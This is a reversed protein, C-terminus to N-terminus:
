ASKKAAYHPQVERFASHLCTATSVRYPVLSQVSTPEGADAVATFEEFPLDFDCIYQRVDERCPPIALDSAMKSVSISIRM